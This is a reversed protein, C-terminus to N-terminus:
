NPQIINFWFNFRDFLSLFKDFAKVNGIIQLKNSQSINELGASFLLSLNNRNILITFDATPKSKGKFYNLVGNKIQIVYQEKIDPLKLNLTIQENSAKPCNLHIALFDLILNVPMTNILDENDLPNPAPLEQVGERLEKAGTLYFNRWTANEAQYALQEFTDALLNKAIENNPYAYVLDKLVQAVWRYEGKLYDIKAKKLVTGPGGMYDIYKKSAQAPPLQHLTAPNADFWGLYFNYVSKVNHNLSGYYGRNYWKQSLSKPLTIMEAIEVMTYGQNALRLTQDHIYKYLDRQKELFDIVRANGWVPWTHQCFLIEVQSGFMEIAENIYHSWAKSDRMKAGRLTYLNHMTHNVDEAACLAKLEPIFFLMEAPAESNPAMLFIFKLGDIMKEQGTQSILETPLILSQKGSSTALALGCGIQSQLGPTLLNGYMYTARRGMVNGAMINESFAAQAFGKPAIIRIKSLLEEPMLGRTGGFHDIHSHTYIIAAIPKLPRHEFYLNLAANATENSLLTDVIIIGTKGEIITMNSVDAGRIQYIRDVVKFLGAKTILKAQRWLSPNVTGDLLKSTNVFNYKSLDWVINGKANKIIGCNPISSIFGKSADEFDQNDNFPPYQVAKLNARKTYDTAIKSETISSALYIFLIIKKLM